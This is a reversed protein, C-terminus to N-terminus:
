NEKKGNEEHAPSNTEADVVNNDDGGPRDGERTSTRTSALYGLLLHAKDLGDKSSPLGQRSLEASINRYEALIAGAFSAYDSKSKDFKANKNQRIPEHSEKIPNVTSAWAIYVLMREALVDFARKPNKMATAMAMNGVLNPPVQGERVVMCYSYHLRDALAFFRGALYAPNEMYKDKTSGFAYLTLGLLSIARLAKKREVNKFPTFDNRWQCAGLRILLPGAHDLVATLLNKAAENRPRPHEIMLSLATAFSTGRLKNARGKDPATGKAETWVETLLSVIDGPLVPFPEAYYIAGAEGSLYVPFRIYPVNEAAKDWWEAGQIIEEVEPLVSFLVFGTGESAKRIATIAIRAKPRTPSGNKVEARLAKCVAGTAVRFRMERKPEPEKARNFFEALEEAFNPASDLYAILLDRSDPDDSPIIQWTKGKLRDQLLYGYADQIALAAGPSVPCLEADKRHYRSNCEAEKTNMSFLPLGKEFILPLRVKPFTAAQLATSQGTLSCEGVRTGENEQSAEGGAEAALLLSVVQSRMRLTYITAEEADFALQVTNGGGSAADFLLKKLADVMGSDAHTRLYAIATERLATLTAAAADRDLAGEAFPFAQEFRRIVELLPEAGPKGTLPAKLGNIEGKARYLGRYYALIGDSVPRPSAREVDTLLRHWESPYTTEPAADSPIGRNMLPERIRTVPFTSGNSLSYQWYAPLEEDLVPTVRIIRGEPSLCVRLCPGTTRPVKDIRPHKKEPTIGARELSRQMEIGENLM